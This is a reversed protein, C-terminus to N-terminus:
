FAIIVRNKGQNKAAYLAEDARRVLDAPSEDSLYEAIGISVSSSIDAHGPPSFVKAAFSQCIRQAAHHAQDTSTDPFIVAFEEGGYRCGVDYDRIENVIVDALVRLVVDGEPHGYTDNFRKFNDVDMMMFSLPHGTRHAQSAETKLRDTLYRKNYLGTLGDTESARKYRAQSRALVLKEQELTRIRAALAFSLLVAEIAPGLTFIMNGPVDVSILGMTWAVFFVTGFLFSTNALLFWSASHFGQRLRIVGVSVLTFPGMAGTINAVLAANDHQQFLGLGIISIAMCQFVVLAWHWAPTNARTELFQQCFTASLFISLGLFVWELILPLAGDLRALESTHGNMISFYFLFSTMYFVYTLYVKHRLSVYIFLNYLAMCIMVGYILAFFFYNHMAHIQFAESTWLVLTLASPGKSGLRIYITQTGMDTGVSPPSQYAFNSFTLVEKHTNESRGALVARYGTPEHPEPVYLTVWDLKSTEVEFVWRRISEANTLQLRVWKNEANGDLNIFSGYHPQFAEQFDPKTVDRITLEGEADELIDVYPGLVIKDQLAALDVPAGLTSSPAVWICAFFSLFQAIHRFGRLPAM